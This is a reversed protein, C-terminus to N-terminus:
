TDVKYLTDIAYACILGQRGIWGVGRERAIWTNTRKM